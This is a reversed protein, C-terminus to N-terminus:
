EFGETAAAAAKAREALWADFEEQTVIHAYGRMVAHGVGCLQACVIETPFMPAVRVQSVGAKKLKEIAGDNLMQLRKVDAKPYDQAAVFMKPVAHLPVTLIMSDRLQASTKTPTFHTPVRIGPIADQCVRYHLLKFSHVVDKSSVDLIVPKNVPLYLNNASIIDDAGHPDAPDRGLPNAKTVLKVDARGFKGDPGPYIFNWTFQEAAVQVRMATDPPPFKSPSARMAWLPIALVLLFLADVFVVVVEIYSYTHGKVGHYDARSNRSARFRLLTYLFFITWGIFLVVVFWHLLELMLDIQAGHVSANEQMGLLKNIM